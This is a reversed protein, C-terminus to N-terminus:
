GVNAEWALLPFHEERKHVSYSFGPTAVDICCAGVVM